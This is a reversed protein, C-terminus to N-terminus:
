AYPHKSSLTPTAVRDVYTRSASPITRSIMAVPAMVSARSTSDYVAARARMQGPAPAESLWRPQTSRHVLTVDASGGVSRRCNEATRGRRRRSVPTLPNPEERPRGGRRLSPRRRRREQVGEGVSRPFPCATPAQDGRLPCAGSRSRHHTRTWGATRAYARRELGGDYRPECAESRGVLSRRGRLDREPTRM